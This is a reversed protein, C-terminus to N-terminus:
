IGIPSADPVKAAALTPLRGADLIVDPVNSEALSGSRAVESIVDPVISEALNGTIADALAAIVEVVEVLTVTASSDVSVVQKGNNTVAAVPSRAGFLPLLKDKLELLPANDAVENSPSPEVKDLKFAVFNAVPVIASALIGFKAADFIVDPTKSEARMGTVPSIVAAFIVDPIRSEALNGAPVNPPPPPPVASAM